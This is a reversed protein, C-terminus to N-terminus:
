KVEVAYVTIILLDAVEHFRCIVHVLREDRAPGEIRYRTGRLDATM